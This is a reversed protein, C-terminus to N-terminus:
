RGRGTPGVQLAASRGLPRRDQHRLAPPPGHQPRHQRVARVEGRAVAAGQQVPTTNLHCYSTRVGYGHDIVVYRGSVSSVGVVAVTGQQAALVPTGIPVGIDVGDHFQNRKLVPHFRNGFPSTIDPSGELPWALDLATALALTGGVFRDAEHAAAGSLYRRHVDYREPEEEGAAVARAVARERQDAGLAAVELVLPADRHVKWLTDLEALAAEPTVAVGRVDLVDALAAPVQQALTTRAATRFPEPLEDAAPPAADAVDTIRLDDLPPAATGNDFYATLAPLETAHGRAREQAYWLLGGVPTRSIMALVAVAVLALDFVGGRRGGGAWWPPPPGIPAGPDARRTDSGRARGLQSMQRIGDRIDSM